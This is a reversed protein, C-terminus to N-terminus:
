SQGAACGGPVIGGECCVEGFDADVRDKDVHSRM